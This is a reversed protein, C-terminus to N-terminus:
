SSRPRIPMLGALFSEDEPDTILVIRGPETAHIRVSNGRVADITEALFRTRVALVAEGETAAPLRDESGDARLYLGRGDWRLSLIHPRTQPNAVAAFRALADRMEARSTTIVNPGASPISREYAPYTADIRTSVVAFDAGEIAFLRESRRLTVNGSANGLLRSIIRVMGKPIILTRDDSLTTTAPASIRCLRVGDTAVAILNEGVSHLLIGSLYARSMDDDAAFAPRAFLDRAIRADLEVRGTETGLVPLERLAALPSIPVKFSSNAATVMAAQDEAVIAIKADAPFHRVLTTLVTLPVALEGEAEADIRIRIAGQFSTSIIFLGDGDAVLRVAELAPNRQSQWADAPLSALGLAAAMAGSQAKIRGPM